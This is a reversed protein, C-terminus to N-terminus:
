NTIHQDESFDGLREPSKQTKVTHALNPCSYRVKECPKRHSHGTALPEVGVRYMKGTLSKDYSCRDHPFGGIPLIDTIFFYVPRLM